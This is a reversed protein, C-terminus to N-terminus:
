FQLQTFIMRVRDSPSRAAEYLSQAAEYLNNERQTAESRPAVVIDGVPAIESRDSYTEWSAAMAPNEFHPRELPRVTGMCTFIWQEEEHRSIEIRTNPPWVSPNTLLRCIDEEFCSYRSSYRGSTVLFRMNEAIGLRLPFRLPNHLTRSIIALWGWGYLEIEFVIDKLERPLRFWHCVMPKKITVEVAHSTGSLSLVSFRNCLDLMGTLYTENSWNSLPTSSFRIGQLFSM